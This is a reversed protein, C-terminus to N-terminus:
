CFLDEWVAYQRVPLRSAPTLSRAIRPSRALPCEACTSYRVHSTMGLGQYVAQARKNTTDAYLRLGAAKDEECLKRVHAYLARFVGQSRRDPVVYVSQIWRAFWQALSRTLAKSLRARSGLIRRTRVM